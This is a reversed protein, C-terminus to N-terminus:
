KARANGQSDHRCPTCPHHLHTCTTSTWTMVTIVRDTQRWFDTTWPSVNTIDVYLVVRKIDYKKGKTPTENGFPFAVACGALLILSAVLVLGASAKM